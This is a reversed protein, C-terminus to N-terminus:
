HRAFPFRPMQLHFTAGYEDGPSAWLRGGHEVVINRSLSLGLGTGTSKTTVFPEFIHEIREPPIGIGSDSVEILVHHDDFPTSRIKIWRTRQRTEGVSEIANTILNMLVRQLQVRDAMIPPAPEDLALKLVINQAALERDLLSATERLLHNLSFESPSGSGKAVMARISKMVDFARQCDEIANRISISAMGSDPKDRELWNLSAKANLKAASLPQGIEHAIATTVAEMSMMRTERERERDAAWQALRAYLRDSEAILAVLVVLHSVLMMLYICYWGVTFRAHLSLNVLTQVLWGSLAVLLWIDLVSRRKGFLLAMAILVLAITSFNVVQLNFDFVERRDSFIPPLLDDGRIALWAMAAAFAVAGALWPLIREPPREAEPGAALDARQLLAYFIVSLPFGYRRIAVLWAASSTGAGLLGNPAFAGPFTLAAPILLLAVFVFGSALVTLARSRYVIAQTYLKTAIILEGVFMIADIVPIFAITEGVHEHRIPLIVIYVAFLLAVVAAAYIIESRNPPTDFL